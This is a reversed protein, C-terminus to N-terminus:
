MHRSKDHMTGGEKGWKKSINNRREVGYKVAYKTRNGAQPQAESLHCLDRQGCSFVGAVKNGCMEEANQERQAQKTKWSGQKRKQQLFSFSAATHSRGKFLWVARAM